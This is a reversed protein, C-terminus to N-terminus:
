CDQPEAWETPTGGDPVGLFTVYAVTRETDSPNNAVEIHTGPDLFAEGATYTRSTCDEATVIELEGEVINVIVPGPHTHWGTTGEPEWTLQAFLVTSADRLTVVDDADDPAPTGEPTTTEEPTPTGDETGDPYTVRFEVAVDDAFTAHPALVEANFGEPSDVQPTGTETETETTTEEQATASGATLGTIGLLGAGAGARLIDRRRPSKENGSM